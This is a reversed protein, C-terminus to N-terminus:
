RVTRRGSQVGDADASSRVGVVTILDGLGTFDGPNRTDLDLGNARAIAPLVFFGLVGADGAAFWAIGDARHRRAPADSV